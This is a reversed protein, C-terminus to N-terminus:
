LRTPDARFGAAPRACFFEELLGPTTCCNFAVPLAREAQARASAPLAPLARGAAGAALGVEQLEPLCGHAARRTEREQGRHAAEGHSLLLARYSKLAIIPSGPEGDAYVGPGAFGDIYVLRGNNASMIPLWADLYGRLIRHKANTHAEIRWVTETPKAM